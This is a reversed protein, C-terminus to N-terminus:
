EIKVKGDQFSVKRRVGKDDTAVVGVDPVFELSVEKNKKAFEMLDAFMSFYFLYGGISRSDGEGSSSLVLLSGGGVFAGLQSDHEFRLNRKKVAEVFQDWVERDKRNLLEIDAQLDAPNLKIRNALEVSCTTLVLQGKRIRDQDIFLRERLTENASDLLQYPEAVTELDIESARIGESEPSQMFELLSAARYRQDWAVCYASNVIPDCSSTPNKLCRAIDKWKLVLEIRNQAEIGAQAAQKAQQEIYITAMIVLVLGPIIVLSWLIERAEKTM